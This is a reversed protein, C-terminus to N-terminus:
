IPWRTAVMYKVTSRVEKAIVEKNNNVLTETPHSEHKVSREDNAGASVEGLWREIEDNLATEWALNPVDANSDM